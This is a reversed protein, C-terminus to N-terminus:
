DAKSINECAIRGCSDSLLKQLIKVFLGALWGPCKVGYAEPCAWSRWRLINLNFLQWFARYQLSCPHINRSLLQDSLIDKGRSRVEAAEGSGISCTGGTSSILLSLGGLVLSM